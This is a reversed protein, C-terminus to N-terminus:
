LLPLIIHMFIQVSDNPDLSFVFQFIIFITFLSFITTIIIMYAYKATRPTCHHQVHILLRIRVTQMGVQKM